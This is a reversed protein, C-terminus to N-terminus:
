FSFNDASTTFVETHPGHFGCRNALEGFIEGVLM